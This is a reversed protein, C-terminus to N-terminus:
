LGLFDKWSITEELNGGLPFSCGPKFICNGYTPLFIRNQLSIIVGDYM